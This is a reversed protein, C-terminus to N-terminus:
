GKGLLTQTSCVWVVGSVRSDNWGYVLFEQSLDSGLGGAHLLELHRTRHSRGTYLSLRM